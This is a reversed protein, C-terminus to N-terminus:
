VSTCTYQVCSFFFCFFLFSFRFLLIFNFTCSVFQIYSIVLNIEWYTNLATLLKEWKKFHTALKDRERVIHLEINYVHRINAIFGRLSPLSGLCKRVYIYFKGLLTVHNILLFDESEEFTGLFLGIENSSDIVINNKKFGPCSKKGFNLLCKAVLCYIHQPNQNKIAFLAIQLNRFASAFYKIM